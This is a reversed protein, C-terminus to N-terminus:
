KKRKRKRKVLEKSYNENKKAKKDVQQKNKYYSCSEASEPIKHTINLVVCGKHKVCSTIPCDELDELDEDKM